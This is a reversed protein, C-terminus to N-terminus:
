STGNQVEQFPKLQFKTAVGMRTICSVVGNFDKQELFVNKAKEFEIFAAQYKKKAHLNKGLLFLSDVKTLVVTDKSNIVQKVKIKQYASVPSISFHFLILLICFRPKLLHKGM